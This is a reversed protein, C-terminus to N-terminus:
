KVEHKEIGPDTYYHEGEEIFNEAKEKTIFYDSGWMNDYDQRDFVEYIVLKKGDM